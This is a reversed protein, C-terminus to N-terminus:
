YLVHSVHIRICDDLGIMANIIYLWEYCCLDNISVAIEQIRGDHLLQQRRTGNLLYTNPTYFYGSRDELVINSFSTDTIFGNKVILIEDCSGRRAYLQNLGTRDESKFPYIIDKGDVLRMSDIERFQYPQFSIYQIRTDYIVRCKVIGFCYEPPIEIRNLDFGIIKRWVAFVTRSMRMQHYSLNHIVGDDIRITEIFLM